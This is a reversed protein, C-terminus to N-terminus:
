QMPEWVTAKQGSANRRRTGTHRIMGLTKLESVRPRVQLISLGLAVAVEDATSGKTRAIEAMVKDRCGRSKLSVNKAAEASTETGKFGTNAVYPM